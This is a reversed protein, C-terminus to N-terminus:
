TRWASRTICWYKWWPWRIVDCLRVHKISLILYKM